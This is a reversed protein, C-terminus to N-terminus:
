EVTPCIPHGSAAYTIPLPNLRLTTVDAAVEGLRLLPAAILNGPAGWFLKLMAVGTGGEPDSFSPFNGAIMTVGADIMARMAEASFFPSQLNYDNFDIVGNGRQLCRDTYQAADVIIADGPRARRLASALDKPQIQAAPAVEVHAVVARWADGGRDKLAELPFPGQDAIHRYTEVYSVDLSTYSV